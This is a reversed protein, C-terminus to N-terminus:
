NEIRRRRCYSGFEFECKSLKLYLIERQLTDLVQKVHRVHYEWTRSFVLVGDIYVIVFEDLLPQFVYNM